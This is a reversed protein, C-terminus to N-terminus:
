ITTIRTRQFNFWLQTQHKIDRSGGTKERLDTLLCSRDCECQLGRGKEGKGSDSSRKCCCWGTLGPICCADTHLMVNNIDPQLVTYSQQLRLRLLNTRVSRSCSATPRQGRGSRTHTRTQRPWRCLPLHLTDDANHHPTLYARSCSVLRRDSVVDGPKHHSSASEGTM